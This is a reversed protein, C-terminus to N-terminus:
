IEEGKIRTDQVKWQPVPQNQIDRLCVKEQRDQFLEM